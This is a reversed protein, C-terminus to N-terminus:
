GGVGAFFSFSHSYKHFRKLTSELKQNGSLQNGDKVCLSCLVTTTKISELTKIWYFSM